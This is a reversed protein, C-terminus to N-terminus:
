RTSFSLERAAIVAQTRSHVHLKRLIATIHAKVTSEKIGLEYAIIKNSKGKALLDLVRLEGQTLASIRERLRDPPARDLRCEGALADGPLFVEGSLVRGVAEGIQDKSFSKPIFGAAGYTLASRMTESTSAASIVVIPVAPSANRLSVLGSFGTSGPMQLDLLILDLDLDPSAHVAQEAEQLTSAELIDYEGFMTEVVQRLAARFLPHDDAILVRFM